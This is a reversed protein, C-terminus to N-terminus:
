GSQRPVAGPEAGQHTQQATSERQTEVLGLRQQILQQSHLDAPTRDGPDSLPQACGQRLRHFFYQVGGTLLWPENSTM